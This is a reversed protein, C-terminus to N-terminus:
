PVSSSEAVEAIISELPTLKLSYSEFQFERRVDLVAKFIAPLSSQQRPVEFVLNNGLQQKFLAGEIATEFAQKVDKAQYEHDPQLKVTLTYSRAYRQKLEQVSDICLFRGKMLVIVRHCLAECEEMTNTSFLISQGVSLANIMVRHVCRRSFPDMGSTPEDLLVLPPSGIFAVAISVRRKLSANLNMVETSMCSDLNLKSGYYAIATLREDLSDTQPCYGIDQFNCSNPRRFRGNWGTVIVANENSYRNNIIVSGRTQYANGTLLQFILSKGAGEHGLIGICEGKMVDFSLGELLKHMEIRTCKFSLVVKELNAVRLMCSEVANTSQEPKTPEDKLLDSPNAESLTPRFMMFCIFSAVLSKHSSMIFNEEMLSGVALVASVTLTIICLDFILMVLWYIWIAMGGTYQLQRSNQRHEETVFLAFSASLVSASVAIGCIELITRGSCHKPELPTANMHLKQKRRATRITTTISQEYPSDSSGNSIRLLANAVANLGFPLYLTSSRYPTTGSREYWVKLQYNQRCGSFKEMATIIELVRPPNIFKALERLEITRLLQQLRNGATLALEEPLKVYNRKWKNQVQPTSFGVHRRVAYSNETLTLWDILCYGTLDVFVQGSRTRYTPIPDTFAKPQCYVKHKVCKCKFYKTRAVEQITFDNSELPTGCRIFVVSPEHLQVIDVIRLLRYPSRIHDSSKGLHARLLANLEEEPPHEEIVGATSSFSVYKEASGTPMTENRYVDELGGESFGYSTCGFMELSKDIESVLNLLTVADTIPLKFEIEKHSNQVIEVDPVYSQLYSILKKICPIEPLSMRRPKKVFTLFCGGKNNAMLFGSSGSCKLEGNSMIAIRDGLIEAEDLYQTSFIVTRKKKITFIMSWIAHRLARDVGHTPEDIVIVKTNGLLAIGIALKRKVIDSLNEVLLQKVEHLQAIKLVENVDRRLEPFPIGKLSGFFYLHEAVTLLLTTKGSDNAGILATVEGAYFEATVDKLAMKAKKGVGYCMSVHEVSLGVPLHLIEQKLYDGGANELFELHEMEVGVRDFANMYRFYLHTELLVTSRIELLYWALLLHIMAGLFMMLILLSYSFSGYDYLPDFLAMFSFPSKREENRVLGNIVITIAFEPVMSLANVITQNGCKRPFKQAYLAVNTESGTRVALIASNVMDQIFAQMMDVESQVSLKTQQMHIIYKTANLLTTSNSDVGTFSIVALVNGYTLGKVAAKTMYKVQLQRVEIIAAVADQLFSIIVPEFSPDLDTNGFLSDLIAADSRNRLLQFNEATIVAARGLLKDGIKKTVPSLPTLVIDKGLLHEHLTWWKSPGIPSPVASDTLTLASLQPGHRLRDSPPAQLCLPRPPSRRVERQHRAWFLGSLEANINIFTASIDPSAFRLQSKSTIEFYHSNYIVSDIVEAFLNPYVNHLGLSCQLDIPTNPYRRKVTNITSVFQQVRFCNSKSSLNQWSHKEAIESLRSSTGCLLTALKAPKPVNQRLIQWADVVHGFLHYHYQSLMQPVAAEALDTWAIVWQLNEMISTNLGTVANLAENIQPALTSLDDRNLTFNSLSCIIANLRSKEEDGIGDPPVLYTDFLGGDCLLYAFNASIYSLFVDDELLSSNRKAEQIFTKVAKILFEKKVSLSSIVSADEVNLQLRHSGWLAKLQFEEYKGNYTFDNNREIIVIFKDIVKMWARILTEDRMIRYLEDIIFNVLKIRSTRKSTGQIADNSWAFNTIFLLVWQIDRLSSKQRIRVPEQAM